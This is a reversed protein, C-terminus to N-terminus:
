NKMDLLSLEDVSRNSVLPDMVYGFTSGVMYNNGETDEMYAHINYQGTEEEWMSMDLDVYYNEYFGKELYVWRLDSQDSEKWVAVKVKSVRNMDKGRLNLVSIPLIRTTADYSGAKVTGTYHGQMAKEIDEDSLNALEDMLKSKRKLENKEREIGYTETLTDIDSFLNTGLGLREGEINVDLAALTTPFNDFTSYERKQNSKKDTNLYVTYVKRTYDKSVKECFDSDMTPHDGSIVIVTDDYFPQEKIWDIFGAVQRSSCAIVDAYQNNYENECAECVYGDEFHTDVTLLTLNFPRDQQALEDLKEKAFSFLKEDEYGWWVKYDEAIWGHARAYDYDEIDYNGHETFYLKRGGFNADSGIMLTQTYGEKELIDGLTEVGSFFSEQTGMDNDDISINLPLGSTQAFMAGVTWTSGPMAYGGNLKNDEGSFDENEQALETLEPIINQNFAGGSNKDSYTTEMSELFIYILNKKKDPFTLKVEKPDVYHEDIFTSENIQGKLYALIDLKTWAYNLWYGGFVIVGINIVILSLRNTQKQKKRRCLLLISCIVVIIICPVLCEIVYNWIIDQNTGELPVKLHFILEEPTLNNWTKLMWKISFGSLLLLMDIVFMLIYKLLSYKKRKM